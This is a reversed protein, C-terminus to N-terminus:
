RREGFVRGRAPYTLIHKSLLSIAQRRVKRPAALIVLWEPQQLLFRDLKLLLSDLPTAPELTSRQRKSDLWPIELSDSDETAPSASGDESLEQKTTTTLLKPQDEASPVPNEM